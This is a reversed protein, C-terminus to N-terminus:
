PQPGETEDDQLASDIYRKASRRGGTTKPMCLALMSCKECKKQYPVVPTENRAVMEHVQQAATLTQTRLVEDFIVSLRRATQGFYVAGAPVEVGLMEELCMGQACLQVDYGKEHRLRGRKYEVPVPLFSRGTRDSSSLCAPKSGSEEQGSHALHFEIVDAVGSLGLRLSRIRLGRVARVGARTEAGAAHSREHLNRGEATDVNEQWLGEILILAAQRACFVYHEIASLPLLDDEDFMGASRSHQSSMTPFPIGSL